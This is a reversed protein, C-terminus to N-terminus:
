ATFKVVRKLKRPGRLTYSPADAVYEISRGDCLAIIEDASLKVGKSRTIWRNGVDLAYLKKGAIAAKHVMHELKWDGLEDSLTVDADQAIISDTDCYIPMTASQIARWLYARVWGTISAAVAVDVFRSRAREDSPKAWISRDESVDGVYDWEPDDKGEDPDLHAPYLLYDRFKRPNTAFKGYASNLMLKAFLERVKDGNHKAESKMTYFKNIYDSFNIFELAERTEIIEIDDITDTEIGAFYEWGTIYYEREVGDAPFVVEGSDLRLPLAGWSRCRLRVFSQPYEPPSHHVAYEAGFPHDVIMARPYASNIDYYKLPGSIIGSQFCQTRGGFYFPRYKEDHKGSSQPIEIGTDALMGFAMSGVTLYRKGALDFIGQLLQLLYECDSRLYRMITERHSERKDAEFLRYDISDKQYGALPFPVLPWSDVLQAKGHRVRVIRGNIVQIRQPELYNILFHFDFRGGNHAYLTVKKNEVWALFDAECGDGWWEASTGDELLVACCFPQVYRGRDFPDTEFDFVGIM